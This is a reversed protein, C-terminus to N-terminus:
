EDKETLQCGCNECTYGWDPDYEVGDTAPMEVADVSVNYKTAISKVSVKGYCSRCYDLNENMPDDDEGASFAEYNETITIRPMTKDGKKLKGVM